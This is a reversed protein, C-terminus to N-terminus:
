LNLEYLLHTNRYSTTKNYKHFNYRKRPRQYTSSVVVSIILKASCTLIPQPQLLYVNRVQLLVSHDVTNSNLYTIEMVEGLTMM